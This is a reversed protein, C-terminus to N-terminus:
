LVNVRSEIFKTAAHKEDLLRMKDCRDILEEIKEKGVTNNYIAGVSFSYPIDSNDSKNKFNEKIDYIYKELKVPQMFWLYFIKDSVRCIKLEEDAYEQMVKVGTRLINDTEFVGYKSKFLEVYNISVSVLAYMKSLDINYKEQEFYNRNYVGTVLDKYAFESMEAEKEELFEMYYQRKMQKEHVNIMFTMFLVLICVALLVILVKVRFQELYKYDKVFSVSMEALCEDTDADYLKYQYTYIGGKLNTYSIESLDEEDVLTKKTDTGKLFYTAYVSRHVFNIMRININIRHADSSFIINNDYDIDNGDETVSEIYLRVPRKDQERDLDMSVAGTTGCMYLTNDYIINRANATFDVPLGDNKSYQIYSANDNLLDKEKIIFIGNGALVVAKGDECLILDLCNAVSIGKASNIKGEEDIFCIGEGTVAWVGNMSDSPVIKMVVDSLLGHSKSYINRVQNDKIEYIGYGDTAVYIEGTSIEKVDLIRTTNLISNTTNRYIAGDTDMLYLGEETGILIEGDAKQWFCRVEDTALGSNESTYSTIDGNVDMKVIGNQYTSIWLNDNDDEYIQRIRLGKCSQTLADTVENENEYCYLGDNCGVYIRGNHPQISNVVQKINWYAGLDSFYNQYLQLIGQGSSVFWFDGQFDQCGQEISESLQSKIQYLKEDKLIGIGNDCCVWYEGDAIQFFQNFSSLEGGEIRALIEGSESVKLVTNGTTGIYFNGDTTGYCCRPKGEGEPMDIQIETIVDDDSILFIEGGKLIIIKKDSELEGMDRIHENSFRKYEKASKEDQEAEISFLGSKTGIWIIGDKDSYLRNIVNAGRVTENLKCKTFEKGDFFYLGSGNTGIWLNGNHDVVIDNVPIARGGLLYKKLETGDYRYLGTYGGIWLFGNEDSCICNATTGELGDESDYVRTLYDKEYKEIGDDEAFVNEGNLRVIFFIMTLIVLMQICKKMDM